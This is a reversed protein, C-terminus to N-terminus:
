AGKLEREKEMEMDEKISAVIIRAWAKWGPERLQELNDPIPKPEISIAMECEGKYGKPFKKTM